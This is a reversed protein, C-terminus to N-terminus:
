VGKKFVLLIEERTTRQISPVKAGVNQPRAKAKMAKLIEPYSGEDKVHGPNNRLIVCLARALVAMKKSQERLASPRGEM